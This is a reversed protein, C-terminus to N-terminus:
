AFTFDSRSRYNASAFFAIPTGWMKFSISDAILETTNLSSCSIISHPIRAFGSTVKSNVFYM